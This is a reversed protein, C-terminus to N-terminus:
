NRLKEDDEAQMVTTIIDQLEEEIQKLGLYRAIPVFFQLTNSAIQKRKAVATHGEITRMNHLRDALKVQLVRMDQEALLQRIDEYENMTIRQFQGDLHTVKNVIAAVKPGFIVAIEALTLATDEVTDHLLTALIADPDETYSLLIQTAAIPHLYFPEGSKRKVPAHHKKITNIAKEVLGINLQTNKKLRDLLETEEPLVDQLAEIRSGLQMAPIDMVMPRVERVYKPIIYRQTLGLTSEQFEVTGYHADVIRLNDAMGLEEITHPLRFPIKGVTGRYIPKPPLPAPDPTITIAIAIVKKLHEQISSLPYSLKTEHIYIAISEPETKNSQTYLLGNIVLQQMKALDCEIAQDQLNNNVLISPLNPTNSTIKFIDIANTLIEKISVTTVELRLYDQARYVISHLYDITAKLALHVDQLSTTLTQLQQEKPNLQKMAQEFTEIKKSVGALVDQGETTIEKFFYEKHSLAKLLEEKTVKQKANLWISRGELSKYAEQHKFLAIFFSSCLLLVYIIKAELGLGAGPVFAENVYNTFFFLALGTGTIAMTVALPWHLLLVAMVLNLLFLMLQPSQFNSMMVLMSGLFFLTYFISLPWFWALFYKIQLPKPWIAYGLFTPILFAVSYQITKYLVPYALSVENPLLYFSAYSATLLYFGFLGYFYNQKPLSQQLYNFLNFNSLTALKDQWSKQNELTTPHTQISNHGWGGKERWVYHMLITISFNALMGPFFSNVNQFYIFCSVVTFCGAGIGMWIVRKSTQFGFVSLLMTPVVIPMYFNASLLLVKLLDMEKLALLLAVVGILWTGIKAVKLPDIQKKTYDQLPKLIDNAMIVACSNLASDASSMALAIVGVALFGKLGAYTYQNVMYGVVEQPQLGPKDALLLIAIWIICLEIAVCLITAYTLSRKIQQIDRAMAMRQFLEPPLGPTMLYSMFAITGLFEPTWGIVQKFSFNPNITLVQVVQQRDALHNWIALALVPLLTGFTIFQLVDTFSVARIGGSASYLILIIAAAVTILPSDYNLFINLIKSIVKLQITIYGIDSLLTSLGMTFQIKNGYLNGLAEAVSVNHLFKGMRPGIIHGTILLGLTVGPIIALIYYLGTSYTYELTYFFGSGSMWTAVITATITATSFTKDGIAYEKLSRSKGRYKLGVLINALLFIILVLIDLIHINNLM